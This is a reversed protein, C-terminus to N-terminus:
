PWKRGSDAKNRSKLGSLGGISEPAPFLDRARDQLERRSFCRGPAPPWMELGVLEALRKADPSNVWEAAGMRGKGADLYANLLMACALRRWPEPEDTYPLAKWQQSWASPNHRYPRAPMARAVRDSM